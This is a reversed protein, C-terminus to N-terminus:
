LIHQRLQANLQFAATGHTHEGHDNSSRRQHKVPFLQRTPLPGIRREMPGRDLGTSNRRDSRSAGELDRHESRPHQARSPVPRTLRALCSSAPHEHQPSNRNRLRRRSPPAPGTADFRFRRRDSRCPTDEPLPHVEFEYAVPAESKERPVVRVATGRSDAPTSRTASAEAAPSQLVGVFASPQRSTTASSTHAGGVQAVISASDFITDHHAPSGPRTSVTRQVRHHTSRQEFSLRRQARPNQPRRHKGHFM